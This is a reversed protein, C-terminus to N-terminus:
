QLERGIEAEHSQGTGPRVRSQRSQGSSGLVYHQAKEWVQIGVQRGLKRGALDGNRFHIGCYRRSMGAQDAAETFTSWSLTIAHEPFTASEVRSSGPDLTVSYGFADSGTFRRLIEAAAASFTSHGSVFEPFPPTVMVVPQYPALPQGGYSSHWTWTGGLRSSNQHCVSLPDGHDTQRFRLRARGFGMLLVTSEM